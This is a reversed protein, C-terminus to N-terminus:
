WEDGFQDGPGGEILDVGLDSEQHHAVVAGALFVAQIGQTDPIIEVGLTSNSRTSCESYGDKICM